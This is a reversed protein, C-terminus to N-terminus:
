RAREILKDLKAEIREMWRYAAIEKSQLVQIQSEHKDTTERISDIDSTIKKLHYSAIGLLIMIGTKISFDVWYKVVDKERDNM